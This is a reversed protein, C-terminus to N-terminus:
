LTAEVFYHTKHGNQIMRMKDLELKMRLGGNFQIEVYHTTMPGCSESGFKIVTYAGHKLTEIVSSVINEDLKIKEEKVNM